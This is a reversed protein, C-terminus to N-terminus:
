FPYIYNVIKNDINYIIFKTLKIRFLRIFHLLDIV